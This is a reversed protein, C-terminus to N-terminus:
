RGPAPSAAPLPALNRLYRISAGDAINEHVDRRIETPYGYTPDFRLRIDRLVNNPENPHALLDDFLQDVTHWWDLRYGETVVEGSSMVVRTVQGNRVEVTAWEVIEPRCFCASRMEVAYDRLGSGTWREQALRLERLEGPSLPSDACGAALLLGLAAAGCRPVLGTM